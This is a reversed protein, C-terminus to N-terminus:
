LATDDFEETNDIYPKATRGTSMFVQEHLFADAKERLEPRHKSVINLIAVTTLNSMGISRGDGRKIEKSIQKFAIKFENPMDGSVIGGDIPAIAKDAKMVRYQAVLQAFELLKLVVAESNPENIEHAYERAVEFPSQKTKSKFSSLMMALRHILQHCGTCLIAINEASDSGGAEQPIKHHYDKQVVSTKKQHAECIFHTGGPLLKLDDLAKQGYAPVEPKLQPAPM